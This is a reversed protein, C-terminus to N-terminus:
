PDLAGSHPNHPATLGGCAACIRKGTVTDLFRSVANIDIADDSTLDPANNAADEVVYEFLKKLQGSVLDASKILRDIQAPDFDLSYRRLDDLNIHLLKIASNSTSEKLTPM